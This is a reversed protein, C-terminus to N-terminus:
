IEEYSEDLGEVCLINSYVHRMLEAEQLTQGWLVPIMGKWREGIFEYLLNKVEEAPLRHMKAIIGLARYACFTGQCTGMGLRTKRRLDNLNIQRNGAIVEQLRSETIQECECVVQGEQRETPEDPNLGSYGPLPELATRCPVSNGLKAAALDVAKEAMLRYTTFKGGVISILGKLGDREEHDIVFFNRTVERGQNEYETYGPQYLPRIGAFARLIRAQEMAPLMQRGITLLREVEKYTAKDDEPGSVNKSTTGYISVTHHPVFIDGDGPPQCRNIICNTLRHNFVLLTGKNAIIDLKVGALAAVKGAWPGAANIVVQCNIIKEQGSRERVKVGTIRGGATVIGVAETYTLAKAGRSKAALVNEEVLRFGDVAGDPVRFARKILPSLGPEARLLETPDIESTAIGCQKCAKLWQAVFGPDDDALQIFVGGTEEICHGATRKLITNEQICEVASAPDTVAYRAGSHLLGHFRASTGNCLDGKEILVAEIGRMALDRLIGAGTIGGGIVVAQTEM